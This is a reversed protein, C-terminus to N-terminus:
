GNFKAVQCDLATEMCASVDPVSSSKQNPICFL